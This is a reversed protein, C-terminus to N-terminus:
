NKANNYYKLVDRVDATNEAETLESKLNWSNLEFHEFKSSKKSLSRKHGLFEYKRCIYQLGLFASISISVSLNLHIQNSFFGSLNFLTWIRILDIGHDNGLNWLKKHTMWFENHAEINEKGRTVLDIYM